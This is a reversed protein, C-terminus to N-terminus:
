NFFQIISKYVLASFFFCLYILLLIHVLYFGLLVKKGTMLYCKEALVMREVFKLRYNKNSILYLIFSSTTLNILLQLQIFRTVDVAKLM